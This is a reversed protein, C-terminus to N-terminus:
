EPRNTQGRSEHPRLPPITPPPVNGTRLYTAFSPIPCAYRAPSGGTSQLVGAHLIRVFLAEATESARSDPIGDEQVLERRLLSLLDRETMPGSSATDQVAQMAAASHRGVAESREDYYRQRMRAGNAMAATLDGRRLDGDAQALAECCARINNHLHQPWGDSADSCAQAWRQLHEKAGLPRYGALTDHAGQCSESASLADLGHTAEDALRSAGLDAIHARTTSLGFYVPLIALGHDGRHLEAISRNLPTADAAEPREADPRIQQAEDVLLVIPRQWRPFHHRLSRFTIEPGAVTRTSTTGRTGEVGFGRMGARSDKSEFGTALELDGGGMARHLEAVLGVRSSFADPQVNLVLPPSTTGAGDSSEWRVQLENLLATKGAGPAGQVVRTAGRIGGVAEINQLTAALAAIPGDRGVFVDPRERDGRAVLRRMGEIDPAKSSGGAM